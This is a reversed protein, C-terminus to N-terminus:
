SVHLSVLVSTLDPWAGQTQSSGPGWRCSKNQPRCAM